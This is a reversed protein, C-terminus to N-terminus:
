GLQDALGGIQFGFGIRQRFQAARARGVDLDATSAIGASVRPRPAAALHFEVVTSPIQEASALRATRCLRALQLAGVTLLHTESWGNATGVM